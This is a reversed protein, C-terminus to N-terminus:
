RTPRCLCRNITWLLETQQALFFGEGQISLFQPEPFQNPQEQIPQQFVLAQNDTAQGYSL